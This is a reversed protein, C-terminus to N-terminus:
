VASNKRARIAALMQEKLEFEVAARGSASGTLFGLSFSVFVAGGLFFLQWLWSM